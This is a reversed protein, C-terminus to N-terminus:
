YSLLRSQIESAKDCNYAVLVRAQLEWMAYKNSIDTMSKLERIINRLM